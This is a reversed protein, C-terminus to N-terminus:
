LAVCHACIACKSWSFLGTGITYAAIIEPSHTRTITSIYPYNAQCYESSDYLMKKATFLISGDDKESEKTATLSALSSNISMRLSAIKDRLVFSGFLRSNEGKTSEESSKNSMIFKPASIFSELVSKHAVRRSWRTSYRGEHSM